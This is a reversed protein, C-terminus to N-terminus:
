AVKRTVPIQTRFAYDTMDKLRWRAHEARVHEEADRQRLYEAQRRKWGDPDTWSDGAAFADVHWGTPECPVGDTQVEWLANSGDDNHRLIYWCGTNLGSTPAGDWRTLTLRPDIARLRKGLDHMPTERISQEVEPPVWLGM